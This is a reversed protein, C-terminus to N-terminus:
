EWPGTIDFAYCGGGSNLVVVKRGPLGSVASVKELRAFVSAGVKQPIGYFGPARGRYVGGVGECIHWPAVYLGGDSPNPFPIHDSPSTDGSRYGSTTNVFTPYARSLTIPSGIGSYARPARFDVSGGSTYDMESTSGGASGTSINASPGHIFAAYADSSGARIMDGFAGTVGVAGAGSSYRVCLYFTKGNGVLFWQRANSDADSSKAWFMGGSLQAETPYARDGTSIATMSEYGVVRANTTGTDDVRLYFQTGTVDSSRYAALNTGSYPKTFGLSAIKHTITGTATQNPVGPVPFTYTNGAVSTVKFQGNISGGTVTAGAIETVMDPEFPHGAGRTVTAVGSAIVVSDVTGSGWGNVLCADLVGIMAGATGSLVPAGAMDSHFYKVTNSM